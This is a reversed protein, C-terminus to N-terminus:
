RLNEKFNSKRAKLLRAFYLNVAIEINLNGLQLWKIAEEEDTTDIISMLLKASSSEINSNM